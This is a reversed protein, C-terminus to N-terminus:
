NNEDYKLRRDILGAKVLLQASMDTLYSKMGEPYEKFKVLTDIDKIVKVIKDLLVRPNAAVENCVFGQTFDFNIDDSKQLPIVCTEVLGDILDHINESIRDYLLHDAYYELGSANWHLVKASNYIYNLNNILMLFMGNM